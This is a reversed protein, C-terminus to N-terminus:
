STLYFHWVKLRKDKGSIYPTQFQKRAHLGHVYNHVNMADMILVFHSTESTEEGGLLNLAKSM